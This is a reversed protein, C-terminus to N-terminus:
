RRPVMWAPRSAALPLSGTTSPVAGPKMFATNLTLQFYPAARTGPGPAAGGSARDALGGQGAGSGSLVAAWGGRDAAGAV